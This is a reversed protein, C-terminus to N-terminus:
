ASTSASSAPRSSCRACRRTSSRSATSANSRRARPAARKRGPPAPRRHRAARAARLRAARGPRQSQTRRVAGARRRGPRRLRRRRAPDKARRSRSPGPWPPATRRQGPRRRGPGPRDSRRRTHTRRAPPRRRRAARVPRRRPGRRLLRPPDQRSGGHRAAGPLRGRLRGARRRGAGVRPHGRRATRAAVAGPRPRSRHRDLRRAVLSWRGAAEPPGTRALHLPRRTKAKRLLRLRLPTSRTTPSRARGSWTGCRTSSPPTPRGAPPRSSRASSRRAAVPWTSAFASTSRSTPRSRPRSDAGAPRAARPPVPRGPRRRRRALRPRGLGARRRRVARRAPAASLRPRARGARRTRLGVLAPVAGRAPRGGRAPPRPQGVRQRRRALGAPLAGLAAAPVPEVERRLRALSRRRLSRLVDPDCWERETGGPRFEGRLVSGAEELRRLTDHVLAAPLSWRTPRTARPSRRTPARGACCCATSPTSAPRCSSRPCAARRSCASARRPLAGRGRRRGLAGRRRHAGAGRPPRHGARGALRGVRDGARARRRSRGLTLDGVRRLLDHVQDRTRARREGLWQLELELEDVASPDLLERLEEQGLLERLRERDLALAQARREALPADGEYMFEAIYDFLLSRAFPSASATEVSTVRIHRQQIGNLVEQLAPLDFVDQLCERYTELLIPFSGYRSAVAMLDSARQRM